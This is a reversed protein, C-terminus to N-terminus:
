PSHRVPSSAPAAGTRGNPKPDPVDEPGNIVVDVPNLPGSTGGTPLFAELGAMTNVTVSQGHGPSASPVAPMPTITIWGQGGNAM